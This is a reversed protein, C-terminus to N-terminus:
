LKNVMLIIYLATPRCWIVYLNKKKWIKGIKLSTNSRLPSSSASSTALITWSTALINISKLLSSILRPVFYKPPLSQAISWKGIDWLAGQNHGVKVSNGVTCSWLRHLQRHHRLLSWLTIPNAFIVRETIPCKRTIKTKSILNKISQNISQNISENM